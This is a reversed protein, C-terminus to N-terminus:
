REGSPWRGPLCLSAFVVKNSAIKNCRHPLILINFLAEFSTAANRISSRKPCGRAAQTVPPRSMVSSSCLQQKFIAIM